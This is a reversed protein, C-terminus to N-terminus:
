PVGVTIPDSEVGSISASLCGAPAIDSRACETEVPLAYAWYGTSRRIPVRIAYKGARTTRVVALLVDRFIAGTDTVTRDLKIIEIPVHPRARGRARLSGTLQATKTRALYRGVLTLREPLPVHAQLEYAAAPRIGHRGTGLPAVVARWLYSGARVPMFFSRFTLSIGSVLPTAGGSTQQLAGLCLDARVDSRAPDGAEPRSLYVPVEVEREGRALRLVWAGLPARGSCTLASEELEPRLPITAISGVLMGADAAYVVASGVPTGSPVSAGLAFGSPVFLTVRGPARAGYGFGLNLVLRAQDQTFRGGRPEVVLFPPSALPKAAVGQKAGAPLVLAISGFALVAGLCTASRVM